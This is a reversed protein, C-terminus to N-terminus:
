FFLPTFPGSGPVGRLREFAQQVEEPPVEVGVVVGGFRPLVWRVAGGRRKKDRGLYPAVHEWDVSVEPLPTLKELRGAWRACEVSALLGRRRALELELLLGWAVAEGHLFHTYGTAAELAHALTHGLNLSARAGQDREDLAVVEAKVKIAAALLPTAAFLDGAAVRSLHGELLHELS